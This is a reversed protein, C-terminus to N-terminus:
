SGENRREQRIREASATKKDWCEQCRGGKVPAGHEPGGKDRRDYICVGAAKRSARLANIHARREELPQQVGWKM